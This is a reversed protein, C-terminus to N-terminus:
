HWSSIRQLQTNAGNGKGVHAVLHFQDSSSHDPGLFAQQFLQLLRLRRQVDFERWPRERIRDNARPECRPTFALFFYLKDKMIPGGVSGGVGNRHDSTRPISLIAPPRRIRLILILRKVPGANFTSGSSYWHFEGHFQNGGSKTIASIVGGLAGGYEAEFGNTKVQVEQLFEYVANQRSNGNIVGTDVLWRNHLQKRGAPM